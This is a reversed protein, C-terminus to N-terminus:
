CDLLPTNLNNLRFGRPIFRIVIGARRTEQKNPPSGHLTKGDFAFCQGARLPMKAITKEIAFPPRPLEESDQLAQVYQSTKFQELPIAEIQTGPVLWVCNHEQAEDLAIWVNINPFWGFGESKYTDQHWEIRRAGPSKIWFTSRWICVEDGLLQKATQVILPHTALKRIIPHDLHADYITELPAREGITPAVASYISETASRERMLEEIHNRLTNMEQESMLTIPGIFGDRQFASHQESTLVM